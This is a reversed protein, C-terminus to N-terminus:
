ELHETKKQRCMSCTTAHIRAGNFIFQRSRNRRIIWGHGLILSGSDAVWHLVDILAEDYTQKQLNMLPIKFGAAITGLTLKAGDGIASIVIRAISMQTAQEALKLVSRKKFTGTGDPVMTWIDMGKLEEWGGKATIIGRTRGHEWSTTVSSEGCFVRVGSDDFLELWDADEIPTVGDLILQIMSLEDSDLSNMKLEPASILLSELTVAERSNISLTYNM